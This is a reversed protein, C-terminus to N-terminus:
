VERTNRYHIRLVNGVNTLLLLPTNQNLIASMLSEDEKIESIKKLILEETPPEKLIDFTDNYSNRLADYVAAKISLCIGRLDQNTEQILRACKILRDNPRLKRLPDRGVRSIPDFLLKDKFRMIEKEAYYDIFDDDAMKKIKMANKMSDMVSRVTCEVEPIEMSQHLYECGFLKGLFASTAHPTNHLYFKCNWYKELESKKYVRIDKPLNFNGKEIAIEGCESIMCLIDIEKLKPCCSNSTIVDPIGFYCHENGSLKKFIEVTEADNEFSIVSKAKKLKEAFQTINRPGVCSFVLDVKSILNDEEGPFFAGSYKVKKMEYVDDKVFATQYEKRRKMCSIISIDKDVFFIEYGLEYFMPALYGRGIAGAGYILLKKKKLGKNLRKKLEVLKLM